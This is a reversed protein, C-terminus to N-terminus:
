MFELMMENSIESCKRKWAYLLRMDLPQDGLHLHSIIHVFVKLVVFDANYALDEPGRVGLISRTPSLVKM